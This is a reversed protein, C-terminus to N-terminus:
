EYYITKRHRKQTPAIPAQRGQEANKPRLLLCLEVPFIFGYREVLSLNTQITCHRIRLRQEVTHTHNAESILDAHRAQSYYRWQAGDVAVGNCLPDGIAKGTHVSRRLLM